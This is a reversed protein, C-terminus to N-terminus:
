QIIDAVAVKRAELYKLMDQNRRDYGSLLGEADDTNLDPGAMILGAEVLETIYANFKQYKTQKLQIDASRNPM